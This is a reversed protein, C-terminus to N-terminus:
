TSSTYRPRPRPNTFFRPLRVFLKSGIALLILISILYTSRCSSRPVNSTDKQEGVIIRKNVTRRNVCVDQIQTTTHMHMKKLSLANQLDKKGTAPMWYLMM